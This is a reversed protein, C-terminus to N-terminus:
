DLNKKEFIYISILILFATYVLGYGFIGVLYSLGLNNEYLLFDKINFKYFAPLVFHYGELLTQIEPRNIVFSTTMATDVSHGIVYLVLTYLVSMTPTTIMSLTGVLCLVLLSEIIIFLISWLILPSFTGGILFFLSLTILSLILINLILVLSLGLYKGLIFTFRPVPRSIIMYVTRNEIEKSLIGVGIFIAIGISSLSLCGMGFDLAVRSPEGYTFSFAVYTVLLLALGLFLTNYLIKSGIIEKFTYRGIVLSKKLGSSLM